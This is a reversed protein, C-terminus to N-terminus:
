FKIVGYNIVRKGGIYFLRKWYRILICIMNVYIIVYEKVVFSIKWLIRVNMIKYVKYYYCVVFNESFREIM